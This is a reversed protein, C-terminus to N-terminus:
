VNEEAEKKTERAQEREKEIKRNNYAARRMGISSCVM